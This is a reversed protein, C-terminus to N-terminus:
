SLWAFSTYLLVAFLFYRTIVLSPREYVFSIQLYWGTRFIYCKPISVLVLATRVNGSLTTGVTTENIDM